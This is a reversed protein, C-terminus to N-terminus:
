YMDRAGREGVCYMCNECNTCEICDECDVCAACGTCYKCHVCNECNTCDNDDLYKLRSDAEGQSKYSFSSNGTKENKATYFM